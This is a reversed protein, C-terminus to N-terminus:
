LTHGDDTPFKESGKGFRYKNMVGVARASVKAPLRRLLSSAGELLLPDDSVVVKDYLADEDRKSPAPVHSAVNDVECGSDCEWSTRWRESQAGHRARASNPPMGAFDDGALNDLRLPRLSLSGDSGRHLEGVFTALAGCLLTCEEFELCSSDSRMQAVTTWETGARHTLIFDQWKDPAAAFTKREVRRGRRMDFLSLEEAKLNIRVHPADKLSIVFDISGSAFAVPAPHIGDHLQRSVAVSYLVCAQGTLPSTLANSSPGDVYAELRLLQSSSLPKSFHCDYGGCVPLRRQVELASCLPLDEVHSRISPSALRGQWAFVACGGGLCSLCLCGLGVIGFLWFVFSIGTVDNAPSVASLSQVSQGANTQVIAGASGASVEKPPSSGPVQAAVPLAELPAHVGLAETDHSPGHGNFVLAEAATFNSWDDQLSNNRSGSARPASPASTPLSSVKADEKSSSASFEQTAVSASVHISAPVDDPVFPLPPLESLAPPPQAVAVFGIGQNPELISTNGQDRAPVDAVVEGVQRPPLAESGLQSDTQFFSDISASKEAGARGANEVPLQDPEDYKRGFRQIRLEPLAIGIHDKSSLAVMPQVLLPGRWQSQPAAAVTEEQRSWPLAWRSAASPYAPPASLPLPARM